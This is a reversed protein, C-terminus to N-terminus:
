AYMFEMATDAAETIILTVTDERIPKARALYSKLPFFAMKAAMAKKKTKKSM